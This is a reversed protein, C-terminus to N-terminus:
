GLKEAVAEEVRVVSTMPLVFDYRDHIPLRVPDLTEPALSLPHRALEIKTGLQPRGFPTDVLLDGRRGDDGLSEIAFTFGDVEVRDLAQLAALAVEDEPAAFDLDTSFRGANGARFKRLATGGKFVLRRAFLRANHLLHLAHDQAIDLLAANRGGRAGQYHRALHGETIRTM